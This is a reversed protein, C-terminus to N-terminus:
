RANAVIGIASNRDFGLSRLKKYLKEAPDTGKNYKPLRNDM